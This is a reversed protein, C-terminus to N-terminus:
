RTTCMVSGCRTSSSWITTRSTAACGGRTDASHEWLRRTLPFLMVRVDEPHTANLGSEMGLGDDHATITVEHGRAVLARALGFAATIPGGESQQLSRLALLVRM